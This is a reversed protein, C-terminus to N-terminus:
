ANIFNNASSPEAGQTIARVLARVLRTALTGSPDRNANFETVTLGVVKPSALLTELAQQAEAFSLGGKHPVDAAPFDDFDVVDVDFHILIHEVKAELERLALGAAERPRGKVVGSPFTRMGSNRLHDREAPDIGGAEACYGFLTINQESLLPHCPGVRSLEDVGGGTIHALGMGDLIGSTTTDPTNLDIDGDVYVMGLSHFHKTLGALVGITITCDGGLVLPWTSHLIAQDVAHAVKRLVTVVLPLNQHRPAQPDPRFSAQPLDGYDTVELGASRLYGELGARRLAQPAREQGLTRAGASSPVGVLGVNRKM